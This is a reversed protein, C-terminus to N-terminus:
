RPLTTVGGSRQHGLLNWKEPQNGFNEEAYYSRPMGAMNGAVNVIFGMNYPTVGPTGMSAWHAKGVHITYYGADRLQQVM